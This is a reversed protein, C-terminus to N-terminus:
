TIKLQHLQYRIDMLDMAHVRAIPNSLSSMMLKRDKERRIIRDIPNTMDLVTNPEDASVVIPEAHGYLPDVSSVSVPSWEPVPSVNRELLVTSADSDSSYDEQLAAIEGLTLPNSAGSLHARPGFGSLSEVTSIILPEDPGPAASEQIFFSM